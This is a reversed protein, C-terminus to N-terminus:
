RSAPSGAGRADGGLARQRKMESVLQAIRTNVRKLARANCKRKAALGRESSLGGGSGAKGRRARRLDGILDRARDRRARSSAYLIWWSHTRCNRWIRIIAKSCLVLSMKQWCGDSRPPPWGVGM